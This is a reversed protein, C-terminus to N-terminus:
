CIEQEQLYVQTGPMKPERDRWGNFAKASMFARKFSLWITM